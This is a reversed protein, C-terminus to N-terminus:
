EVWKSISVKIISKRKTIINEARFNGNPEEKYRRKRQQASRHKENRELTNM